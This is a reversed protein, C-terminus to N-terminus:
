PFITQWDKSRFPRILKGRKEEHRFDLDYEALSMALRAKEELLMEAPNRPFKEPALLFVTALDTWALEFPIGVEIRGMHWVSLRLGRSVSESNIPRLGWRMELLSCYPRSREDKLLIASNDGQGRLELVLEMLLDRAGSKKTMEQTVRWIHDEPRGRLKELLPIPM